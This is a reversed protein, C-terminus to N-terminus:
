GAFYLVTILLIFGAQLLKSKTDKRTYLNIINFVAFLIFFLNSLLSRGTFTSSVFFLILTLIMLMLSGKQLSIDM